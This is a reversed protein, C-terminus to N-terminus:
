VHCKDIIIKDQRQRGKYQKLSGRRNIYLHIYSARPVPWCEEFGCLVEPRVEGVLYKLRWSEIGLTQSEFCFNKRVLHEEDRGVLLM